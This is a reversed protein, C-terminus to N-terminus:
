GLEYEFTFTGGPGSEAVASGTGRLGSLEGSASGDMVQWNTATAGAGYTGDARVVFSGSRGGLTGITRQYGTFSANGDDRYCILADWTGQAELDGSFGFTVQAKTLKGGSDLEEYTDESWSLVTFTGTAEVM